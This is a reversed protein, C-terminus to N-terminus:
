FSDPLTMAVSKTPLQRRNQPKERRFACGACTVVSLPAAHCLEGCFITIRTISFHGLHKSRAPEPFPGDPKKKAVQVFVRRRRTEQPTQNRGSFEAVLQAFLPRVGFAGRRAEAVRSGPRKSFARQPSGQGQGQGQGPLGRFARKGRPRPSHSGERSVGRGADFVRFRLLAFHTFVVGSTCRVQRSLCACSKGVSFNLGSVLEVFALPVRFAELPTDPPIAENPLLFVGMLAPPLARKRQRSPSRKEGAEGDSSGGEDTTSDETKDVPHFAAIVKFFHSPVPLLRYGIVEHRAHLVPAVRRQGDEEALKRKCERFAKSLADRTALSSDRGSASATTASTESANAAASAEQSEAGTQADDSFLGQRDGEGSLGLAELRVPLAEHSSAWPRRRVDAPSVARM